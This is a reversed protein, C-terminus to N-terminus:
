LFVHTVFFYLSLFVFLAFLIYIFKYMRDIFELFVKQCEKDFQESAQDSFILVYADKLKNKKKSNEDKM